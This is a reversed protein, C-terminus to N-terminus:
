LSLLAADQKGTKALETKMEGFVRAFNIKSITEFEWPLGLMMFARECGTFWCAALCLLTHEGSFFVYFCSKDDKEFSLYRKQRTDGKFSLRTHSLRSVRLEHNSKGGAKTTMAYIARICLGLGDIWRRWPVSVVSPFFSSFLIM